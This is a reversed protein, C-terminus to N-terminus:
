PIGYNSAYVCSQHQTSLQRMQLGVADWGKIREDFGDYYYKLYLYPKVHDNM